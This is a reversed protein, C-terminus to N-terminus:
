MGAEGGREMGGPVWKEWENEGGEMGWLPDLVGQHGVLGKRTMPHQRWAGRGQEGQSAHRQIKEWGSHEMGMKMVFGEGKSWVWRCCLQEEFNWGQSGQRRVESKVLPVKTEEQTGPNSRTEKEREDGM